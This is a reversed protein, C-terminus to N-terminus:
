SLPADGTYGGGCNPPCPLASLLAIPSEVDNQDVSVAALTPFTGTQDNFKIRSTYFRIGKTNEGLLNMIDAKTFFVKAYNVIRNVGRPAISFPVHDSVNAQIHQKIRDLQEVGEQETVRTADNLGNSIFCKSSNGRVIDMRHSNTAVALTSLNNEADFAPYIRIGASDEQNFLDHLDESKYFTSFKANSKISETQDQALDFSPHNLGVNRNALTLMGPAPVDVLAIFEEM